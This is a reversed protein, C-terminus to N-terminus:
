GTRYLFLLACHSSALPSSLMCIASVYRRLCGCVSTRWAWLFTELGWGRRWPVASVPASRRQELVWFPVLQFWVSSVNNFSSTLFTRSKEVSSISRSFGFRTSEVLNELLVPMVVIFAWFGRGLQFLGQNQGDDELHLSSTIPLSGCITWVSQLSFFRSWTRMTWVLEWLVQLLGLFRTRVM